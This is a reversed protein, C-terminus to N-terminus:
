VLSPRKAPRGAVRSRWGCRTQELAKLRTGTRIKADLGFLETYSDLYAGVDQNRPFMAVEAPYDLDSFRTVMRATNTRMMPWVGSAPNDHCWQGGPRDHAELLVPNFGQAQLFRAAVIGGPGAGIIAVKEM